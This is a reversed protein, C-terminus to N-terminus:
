SLAFKKAKSKISKKKEFREEKEHENVCDVDVYSDIQKKKSDLRLFCNSIVIILM